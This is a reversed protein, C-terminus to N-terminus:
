ASQKSVFVNKANTEAAFFSAVTSVAVLVILVLFAKQYGIIPATKYADLINGMIVPIIAAGAFGVCNVVGTAIGSYRRDNVENSITWCMTFCSMVFGMIFLFPTLAAVPMKVFIFVVWCVLTAISLSVVVIKRKKIKDSIYGVILGSAMSGVVAAIILNAAAVKPLGYSTMLYSV